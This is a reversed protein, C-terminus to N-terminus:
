KRDTSSAAISYSFYIVTIPLILILMGGVLLPFLADERPDWNDVLLFGLGILWAITISAVVLLLGFLWVISYRDSEEM